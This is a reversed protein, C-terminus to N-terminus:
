RSPLPLERLERAPPTVNRTYLPHAFDHLAYIKHNWAAPKERESQLHLIPSLKMREHQANFENIALLEGVYENMCALEPGTIDDFYCYVRPLRSGPPGEFVRLADKTSSYYDLDFAVFGVPALSGSALKAPITEAVDGLVLEAGRLRRRLAEADMPYFGEGWVHPLDRYDRPAPLGQGSDFGHVAIRVGVTPGIEAALRELALLGRGGAVGLEIASVHELGLRRALVAASYVGYAYAPRESIDFRMRTELSGLGLKGWAAQVGPVKVLQRLLSLSLPERM